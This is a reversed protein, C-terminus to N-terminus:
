SIVRLLRHWMKTPMLVRCPQSCQSLLLLTLSCVAHEAVLGRDNEEARAQSESYAATQTAVKPHPLPENASAPSPQAELSAEGNAEQQDVMRVDASKSGEATVSDTDAPSQTIDPIAIAPWIEADEDLTSTHPQSNTPDTQSPQVEISDNKQDIAMDDIRDATINASDRVSTQQADKQRADQAHHSPVSTAASLTDAAGESVNAPSSSLPEDESDM